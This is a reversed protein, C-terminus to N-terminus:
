RWECHRALWKDLAEPDVRYRELVKEIVDSDTQGLFTLITRINREQAQSLKVNGNKM